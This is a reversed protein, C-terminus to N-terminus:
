LLGFRERYRMFLTDIESADVGFPTLDYVYRGYRDPKNNPDKLWAHM